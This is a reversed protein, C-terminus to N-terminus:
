FGLANNIREELMISKELENVIDIVIAHQLEVSSLDDGVGFDCDLCKKVIRGYRADFEKSAAKGLRRATVFDTYWGAACGEDECDEPTRLHQLPAEYGLEILIVGLNFLLQNQALQRVKGKQVCPRAVRADEHILEAHLFPERLSYAQQKKKTDSELFYIDSSTMNDHLWPTSQFRLVALTLLRALKFKSVWTERKISGSGDELIKRLSTRKNKAGSPPTCRYVCHEFSSIRESHRTPEESTHISEPLTQFYACLREISPQFSGAAMPFAVQDPKDRSPPTPLPEPIIGFNKMATLLVTTDDHVEHQSNGVAEDQESSKSDVKLWVTNLKEEAKSPNLICDMSLLFSTAAIQSSQGTKVDLSLSAAHDAQDRCIWKSALLNYLAESAHQATKLEIITTRLCAKSPLRSLRVVSLQSSLVRLDDNYQRL